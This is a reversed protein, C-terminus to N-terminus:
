RSSEKEHWFFSQALESLDPVSTSCELIFLKTKYKANSTMTTEQNNQLTRLTYIYSYIKM